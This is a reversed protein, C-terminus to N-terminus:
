PNALFRVDFVFDAEAPIGHRFGFSLLHVTIKRKLPDVYLAQIRRRLDHVTMETTDVGSSAMARIGQLRERELLIADGIAKVEGSAILPHRRRTEKFRLIIREDASDLFLIRLPQGGDQVAQLHRVYDPDQSAGRIDMVLAIHEMEPQGIAMSLFSQLLGSPLNDVCYYGADELAHLATTKGSGSVGSLVVLELPQARSAASM